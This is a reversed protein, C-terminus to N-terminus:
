LMVAPHKCTLHFVTHRELSTDCMANKPFFAMHKTSTKGAMKVQMKNKESFHQLWINITLTYHFIFSVVYMVKEKHLNEESQHMIQTLQTKNGLHLM